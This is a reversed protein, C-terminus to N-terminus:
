LWSKLILHLPPIVLLVEMPRVLAMLVLSLLLPMLTMLMMGEVDVLLLVLSLLLPMMEKLKRECGGVAVGCAIFDAISGRSSRGVCTISIFCDM